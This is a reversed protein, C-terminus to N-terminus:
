SIQAMISMPNMELHENKIKGNVIQLLDVFNFEVKKGSAAVGNFEGVHTGNWTGSVAVHEDDGFLLNLKHTGDLAGTLMQVMGLHEEKGVPVPSMSNRFSHSNDLLDACAGFDQNDIAKFWATVIEKNTM